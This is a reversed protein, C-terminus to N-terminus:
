LGSLFDRQILYLFGETQMLHLGELVDVMTVDLLLALGVVEADCVDISIESVLIAEIVQDETVFVAQRLFITGIM